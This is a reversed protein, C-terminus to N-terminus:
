LTTCICGQHSIHLFICPMSLTLSHANFPLYFKLLKNWQYSGCVLPFPAMRPIQLKQQGSEELHASSGVEPVLVNNHKKKWSNIAHKWYASVNKGRYCTYGVHRLLLNTGQNSCRGIWAQFLMPNGLCVGCPLRLAYLASVELQGTAPLGGVM